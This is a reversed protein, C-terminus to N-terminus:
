SWYWDPLADNEAYHLVAEVKQQASLHLGVGELVEDCAVIVELFYEYGAASVAEPVRWDATLRVLLAETDPHWPRKAVICLADDASKLDAVIERLRTPAFECPNM